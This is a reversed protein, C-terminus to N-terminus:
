AKLQPSLTTPKFLWHEEHDIGLLEGEYGMSLVWQLLDNRTDGFNLVMDPHLSVFLVPRIHKLVQDSGRLVEGEAGEVDIKIVSPKVKLLECYTNLKIAPLDPREFLNEFKAEGKTKAPWLPSLIGKRTEESYSDTNAAFGMFMGAPPPLSNLSFTQEIEAWAAKNPEFVHTNESGVISAALASWEGTSAGVDFVTKNGVLESLTKTFSETFEAEWATFDISFREWKVQLPYKEAIKVSRGKGKILYLIMFASKRAWRYFPTPIKKFAGYRVKRFYSALKEM